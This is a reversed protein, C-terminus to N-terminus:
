GYYGEVSTYNDCVCCTCPGTNSICALGEEILRLLIFALNEKSFSNPCKEHALMHGAVRYFSMPVNNKLIDYCLSFDSNKLLLSQNATFHNTTIASYQASM